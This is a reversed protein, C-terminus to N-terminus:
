KDELIEGDKEKKYIVNFLDVYDTGYPLKSYGNNLYARYYGDYDAKACIKGKKSYYWTKSSDGLNVTFFGHKIEFKQMVWDVEEPTKFDHNFLVTCSTATLDRIADYYRGFEYTDLKRSKAYSSESAAERFRGNANIHMAWKNGDSSEVGYYKGKEITIVNDKAKIDEILDNDIKEIDSVDCKQGKVYFEDWDIVEMDDLAEWIEEKTVTCHTEKTEAFTGRPTYNCYIDQQINGSKQVGSYKGPNEKNSHLLMNLIRDNMTLERIARQYQWSFKWANNIEM